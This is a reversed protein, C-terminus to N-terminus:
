WTFGISMGFAAQSWRKERPFDRLVLLPTWGLRYTLGGNIPQFRMGVLGSLALWPAKTIIVPPSQGPAPDGLPDYEEQLHRGAVIGGGFEGFAYESFLDPASLQRFVTLIGARSAHRPSLFHFSWRSFGVQAITRPGLHHQYNVSYLEGPGGLEFFVGRRVTDTPVETTGRM